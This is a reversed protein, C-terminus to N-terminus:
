RSALAPGHTHLVETNDVWIETGSVSLTAGSADEARVEIQYEGDPSDATDWTFQFPSKNTMARMDGDVSFLVVQVRPSKDAARVTIQGRQLPTKGQEAAHRAALLYQHATDVAQADLWIKDGPDARSIRIATVGHFANPDMGIKQIMPLWPTGDGRQIEAIWSHRPATRDWALDFYGSFLPPRGEQSMQFKQGPIGVVLIMPAGAEESQSNHYAPEIQFGGRREAGQGELLHSTTIPATSVTIVGCHNTNIAGVGTYSTGDFRGTGLLPKIVHTVVSSTGDAYTATVDGKNHNVFVVQTLPNAPRKVIIVLTDGLHPVYGVPLLALADNDLYVKNGVYPALDRFIGTGSPINTYIGSVGSTHGGFTKLTTTFERPVLNIMKPYASKLTGVRIRIGHIATAAITSPPAYGSALYGPLSATAPATVRGVLQWTQGQDTSVQIPGGEVNLIRIRHTEVQAFAPFAPPVDRPGLPTDAALPVLLTMLFILLLVFRMMAAITGSVRGGTL